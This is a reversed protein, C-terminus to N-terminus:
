PALSEGPCESTGSKTFVLLSQGVVGAYIRCPDGPDFALVRFDWSAPGELRSWGGDGPAISHLGVGSIAAYLLGAPDTELPFIVKGKLEGNLPDWTRGGDTSRYVGNVTALYLTTSVLPDVAFANAQLSRPYTAFFWTAGADASRVIRVGRFAYLTRPDSPAVAFDSFGGEPDTELPTWTTGRDTSKSVIRGAAYLTSPTVPDIALTTAVLFSSTKPDGAFEWTAGADGSRQIRGDAQVAFVNSPDVPDVVVGLIGLLPPSATRIRTWAAGHDTSRFLIGNAAIWITGPGGFAISTVTTATLGRSALSWSAGADASRFVGGRRVATSVGALLPRGAVASSVLLANVSGDQPLGQSLRVWTAGRDRSRFLGNDAGAYLIGPRSPFVKLELINRYPGPQVFKWVTGGNTSRFLYRSDSAYVVSASRPDTALVEARVGQLAGGDAPQWSDGNDTSRYLRPQTLRGPDITVFLRNPRYPDTVIRSARYDQPLGRGRLVKWTKGSDTSRILGSQTALFVTGARRPHAALSDIDGVPAVSKWTTGGDLSRVVDGGLNAYVTSPHAADVALGSAPVLSTGFGTAVWSAGGDASRYVAGEASAYLVRPDSPSAALVFVSGGEPGLRRWDGQTDAIDAAQAAAALFLFLLLNRVVPMSM